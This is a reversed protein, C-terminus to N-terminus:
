IMLKRTSAGFPPSIASFDSWAGRIDLVQTLPIEKVVLSLVM